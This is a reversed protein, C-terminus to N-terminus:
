LPPPIRSEQRDRLLLLVLLDYKPRGPNNILSPINSPTGEKVIRQYLNPEIRPMLTVFGELHGM